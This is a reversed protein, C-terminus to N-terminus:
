IMRIWKKLKDYYNKRDGHLITINNEKLIYKLINYKLNNSNFKRSLFNNICYAYEVIFNPQIHKEKKSTMGNLMIEYERKLTPGAWLKTEVSGERHQEKKELIKVIYKDDTKILYVEDPNRYLNINHKLKFYTKLGSQTLYIIEINNIKRKLYYGYKSKNMRKKIFGSARLNDEINTDNEFKKGFFITNSGGAGIGRNQKKAKILKRPM